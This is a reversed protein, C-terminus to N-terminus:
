PTSRGASSRRWAPTQNNGADGQYRNYSTSGRGFAPDEGERAHVNYETM